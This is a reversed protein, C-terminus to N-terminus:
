TGDISGFAEFMDDLTDYHRDFRNVVNQQDSQQQNEHKRDNADLQELALKEHAGVRGLHSLISALALENNVFIAIEVVRDHLYKIM